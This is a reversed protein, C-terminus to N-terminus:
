PALISQYASKQFPSSDDELAFVAPEAVFIKACRLSALFKASCM